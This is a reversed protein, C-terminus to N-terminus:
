SVEPATIESLEIGHPASSAVLTVQGIGCKGPRELDGEVQPLGEAVNAVRQYRYRRMSKAGRQLLDPPVQAFVGADGPRGLAELDRRAQQRMLDGGFDQARPEAGDQRTRCEGLFDARPQGGGHGDCRAVLLEG